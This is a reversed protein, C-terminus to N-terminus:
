NTMIGGGLVENGKYLVLSQGPAQPPQPNSFIFKNSSYTGKKLPSLSRTRCKCKLGKAQPIGSIWNLDQVCITSVKETSAEAVILRNNKTDKEIVELPVELGGVGIRRQGITYLPLGKHEGVKKGDKTVIDGQKLDKKLHRKLFELPTKEPFFCLNQSERYTEKDLPIHYKKALKYVRNKTLNGLPFILKSLHEQTLKYLFYSQDKSKDKGELLAFRDKKKKIQAYHGTALKECDFDKLLELLAEFRVCKNCKVCPNPTTGSKCGELYYDVVERKFTESLDINHLPFDLEESVHKARAASQADCCKNSLLQAEAPALPDTWLNFRVGVLDHGKGKLIYAIVSSDIGGSIALLIRM